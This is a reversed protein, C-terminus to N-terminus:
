NSNAFCKTIRVDDDFTNFKALIKVLKNRNAVNLVIGVATSLFYSKHFVCFIVHRIPIMHKEQKSRMSEYSDLFLKLNLCIMLFTWLIDFFGIRAKEIKKNSDHIISFPWLVTFRLFYFVPRFSYEFNFKKLPVSQAGAFITEM